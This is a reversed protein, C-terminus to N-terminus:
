GNAVAERIGIVLEAVGPYRSRSVVLSTGFATAVLGPEAPRARSNQGAAAPCKGAASGPRAWPPPTPDGTPRGM